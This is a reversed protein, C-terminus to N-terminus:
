LGSFSVMVVILDTFLCAPKHPSPSQSYLSRITPLDVCALPPWAPIAVKTNELHDVLRGPTAIIIHPKKALSIAQTMMDIGGVVCASHLGVSTGLAEFQENIQFALERTPALVVAFLRQPTELLAHLIPLAFAGTKGSGTEALGIIDRGTLAVPIAQTQIQSAHTWGLNATAECLVSSLGLSAFTKKEPEEDAPEDGAATAKASSVAKQKPTVDEEQEQEDSEEEEEEEEEESLEPSRQRIQEPLRAFRKGDTEFKVVWQGEKKKSLGIVEAKEFDDQRAADVQLGAALIM